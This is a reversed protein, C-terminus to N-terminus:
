AGTTLLHKTRQYVFRMQNEYLSKQLLNHYSNLDKAATLAKQTLAVAKPSLEPLLEKLMEREEKQSVQKEECAKFSSTLGVKVGMAKGFDVCAEFGRDNSVIWYEAHNGEQSILYGLQSALCFDMANKGCNAIEIIRFNAGADTLAGILETPMKQHLTNVCIVFFDSITVKCAEEFAWKGVNELDILFYRKM